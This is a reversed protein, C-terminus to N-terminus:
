DSLEFIEIVKGDDMQFERCLDGNSEIKYCYASIKVDSSDKNKGTISQLVLSDGDVKWRGTWFSSCIEYYFSSDKKLELKNGVVFGKFPHMAKKLQSPENTYLGIAPSLKVPGSCSLFLLFLLSFIRILM